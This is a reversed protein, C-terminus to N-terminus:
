FRASIAALIAAMFFPAGVNLAAVGLGTAVGGTWLEAGDCDPEGAGASSRARLTASAFRRTASACLLSATLSLGYM